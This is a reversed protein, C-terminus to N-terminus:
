MEHMGHKRIYFIADLDRRVLRECRRGQKSMTRRLARLLCVRMRLSTCLCLYACLPCSQALLERGTFSQVATQLDASFGSFM